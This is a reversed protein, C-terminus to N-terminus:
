QAGWLQEVARRASYLRGLRYTFADEVSCHSLGTSLTTGSADQLRCVTLGGKEAPTWKSAGRYYRKLDEEDYRYHEFVVKM